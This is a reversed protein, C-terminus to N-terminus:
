RLAVINVDTSEGALRDPTANGTRNDSADDAQNFVLHCRLTSLSQGTDSGRRGSARREPIAGGSASANAKAWLWYPPMDASPRAGRLRSDDTSSSEWGSTDIPGTALSRSPQTVSLAPAEHYLGGPRTPDSLSSSSRSRM